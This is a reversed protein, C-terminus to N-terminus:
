DKKEIAGGMIFRPKFLTWMFPPIIFSVLFCILLITAMAYGVYGVYLPIPILACCGLILSLHSFILAKRIRSFSVIFAEKFNKLRAFEERFRYLLYIEADIGVGMAMAASTSINSNIEIGSFYILPLWIITGIILPILLFIPALISCFLLSVILGSALSSLVISWIIWKKISENFAGAIGIAGGGVEATVNEDNFNKEIYETTIKLVKRVTEHKTDEIFLAMVANKYTSDVISDFSGPEGMSYMMLYEAIAGYTDPVAFCEPDEAHMFRHMLKVYVPLHMVGGMEPINEQFYEAMKDIKRMIEPEKLGEAKTAKILINLPYVGKFKDKIQMEMQYIPNNKWSKTLFNHIAYTNDQGPDLRPIILAAVIVLVGLAAIIAWRMRGRVLVEVFRSIGVEVWNPKLEKETLEQPRGPFYSLLPVFLFVFAIIASALGFVGVRGLISVNEFPIFACVIFAGVDTVMSIVIPFSLLEFTTAVAAKPEKIGPYEERYFRSLFQVAHCAATAFLIFPVIFASSSRIIDGLFISQLGFAWLSATLGVLLPLLVGMVKRFAFWLIVCMVGLFCLFAFFILPLGDSNVWGIIIPAGACRVITNDDNEPEIIEKIEKYIRTPTTRPLGGIDRREGTRFDAIIITSKKDLSVLPGYITPNHFVGYKLREMEEPTEPIYNLLLDIDLFDEGGRLYKVKVAALSTLYYPVVGEMLLINDSIRMVKTLTDPNFIDGEKVTVQVMVVNAGGFNDQIYDNLAVNPHSKPVWRNPDDYLSIRSARYAFFATLILMLFISLLRFKLIGEVFRRVM